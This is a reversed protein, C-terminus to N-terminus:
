IIIYKGDDTTIFKFCDTILFTKKISLEEITLIDQAHDVEKVFYFINRSFVRDNIKLMMFINDLLEINSTDYGTALKMTKRMILYRDTLLEALKHADHEYIIDTDFTKTIRRRYKDEAENERENNFLTLYNDNDTFRYNIRCSSFYNEQASSWTKEPASTTNWWPIQHVKYEEGYRRITLKGTTQQILFAMDNKLINNIASKVNGSEVVLNVYPSINKYHELEDINWNSNTATIRTKRTIIDLIVDGLKIGYRDRTYGSVYASDAIPIKENGDDDIVPLVTIIGSNINFPATKINNGDTDFVEYVYSVYEAALYM